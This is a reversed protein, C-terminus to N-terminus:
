DYVLINWWSARTVIANGWDDKPDSPHHRVLVTWAANSFIDPKGPDNSFYVSGFLKHVQMLELVEGYSKCVSGPYVGICNHWILPESYTAIGIVFAVSLPGCYYYMSIVSYAKTYVDYWPSKFYETVYPEAVYLAWLIACIAGTIAVMVVFGIINKIAAM